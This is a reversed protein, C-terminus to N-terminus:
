FKIHKSNMYNRVAMPPVRMEDAMEKISLIGINDNFYSVGGFREIQDSYSKQQSNFNMTKYDLGFRELYIDLHKNSIELTSSILKKNWGLMIANIIFALGGNKEIKESIVYNIQEKYLDAWNLNFLGLYTYLFSKPINLENCIDEQTLGYKISSIIYNIGGYEEIVDIRENLTRQRRLEVQLMIKERTENSWESNSGGKEFNYGYERNCSDYYEIWYKEADDLQEEDCTELVEFEFEEEGYKNWSSQLHSNHHVGCRLDTFHHQQRERLNKTQGVYNKGNMTNWIRYIGAVKPLDDYKYATM